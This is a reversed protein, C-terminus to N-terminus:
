LETVKLSEDVDVLGPVSRAVAEANEADELDPVEGRLRAVGNTVTV